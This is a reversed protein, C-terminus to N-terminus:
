ATRPGSLSSSRPSSSPSSSCPTARCSRRRNLRPGEASSRSWCRPWSSSRADTFGTGVRGAFRLQRAQGAGEHYGMLLAGIRATRRGEGPLWGGIVLEQRHTHKIKVWAGTRRGPEYRSDLRKAVIGELGQAATAQLLRKGQGRHVAPVRWAAGGLGLGELRERRQEYSLGMLNHGDLYLLDFIAYVVPTSVALRRVPGPATVHMRRQLRGFSPRGDEDFAVLEGDLVAERMGLDGLLGRVEPYGNTIDRLNRSELRM